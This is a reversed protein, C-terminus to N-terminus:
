HTLKKFLDPDSNKLDLREKYGMSLFQEKTVTKKRDGEPLKNPDIIKEDKGDKGEFQAPYQTKMAKIKDDLGKVNGDADLEIKWDSSNSVRFLLYDLDASKAGAGLLAIKLASEKKQEALNDELEKVKTQYEAIQTQIGENDKSAKQLQEILGTSEKHQAVLNEHETKLKGYRVDLNEESATFIKNKKMGELIANVQQETLGEISKLLEQLTM